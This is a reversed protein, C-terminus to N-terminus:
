SAPRDGCQVQEKQLEHAFLIRLLHKHEQSTLHQDKETSLILSVHVEGRNKKSKAEPKELHLWSDM